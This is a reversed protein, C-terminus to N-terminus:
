KSVRSKCRQITKGKCYRKEQCFCLSDVFQKVLTDNYTKDIRSFDEIICDYPRGNIRYYCVMLCFQGCVRSYNSQFSLSNYKCIIGPPIDIDYSPLNYGYSDFGEVRLKYDYRPNPKPLNWLIWHEGPPNNRRSTNQIICLPLQKFDILHMEDAAIVYTSPKTVSTSSLYNLCNELSITDM